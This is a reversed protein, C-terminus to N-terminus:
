FPLEEEIPQVEVIPSQTQAKYTNLQAYPKGSKGTLIDVNLWEGNKNVEAFKYFDQLKFSLKTIEGFQTPQKKVILGQVFIKDEM